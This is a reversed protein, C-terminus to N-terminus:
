YVEHRLLAMHSRLEKVLLAQIEDSRETVEIYLLLAYDQLEPEAAGGNIPDINHQLILLEKRPIEYRYYDGGRHVSEHLTFKLGLVRELRLAAEALNGIRIGYLDSSRM